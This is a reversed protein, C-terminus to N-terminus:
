GRPRFQGVAVFHTPHDESLKSEMFDAVIASLENSSVYADRKGNVTLDLLGNSDFDAKVRKGSLDSCPWMGNGTGGRAWRATDASSLWLTFASPSIAARM